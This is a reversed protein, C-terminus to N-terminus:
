RGKRIHVFNHVAKMSNHSYEQWVSYKWPKPGSPVLLLPYCYKVTIQNLGQYDICTHLEKGIKEVLNWSISSLHLPLVQFTEQVYDEIAQQEALSLPYIRHTTSHYM